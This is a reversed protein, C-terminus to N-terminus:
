NASLRGDPYRVQVFFRPDLVRLQKALDTSVIMDVEEPYLNEPIQGIVRGYTTAGSMPNRIQIITKEPITRHMVLFGTSGQMARNWLAVQNEEIVKASSISAEFQTYYGFPDISIGLDKPRGEMVLLPTIDQEIWGVLLVQGARLNESELRNRHMLLETPLDFKIRSIQF